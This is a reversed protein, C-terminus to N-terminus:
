WTRLHNIEKVGAPLTGTWHTGTIAFNGKGTGATRKGPSTFVNTWADLMPM